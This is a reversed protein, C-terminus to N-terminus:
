IFSFFIEKYIELVSLLYKFKILVCFNLVNINNNKMYFSINKILLM